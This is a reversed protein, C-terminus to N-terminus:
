LGTARILLVKDEPADCFTVKSPYVRPAVINPFISPHAMVHIAIEQNDLQHGRDFM